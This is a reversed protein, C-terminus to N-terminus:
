QGRELFLEFYFVLLTACLLVSKRGDQAYVKLSLALRHADLFRRFAGKPLGLFKFENRLNDISLSKTTDGDNPYKKITTNSIEISEFNFLPGSSFVDPGSNTNFKRMTQTNWFPALFIVPIQNKPANRRSPPGSIGLTQHESVHMVRAPWSISPRANADYSM